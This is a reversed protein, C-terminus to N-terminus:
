FICKIVFFTLGPYLIYLNIKVKVKEHLLRSWKGEKQKKMSIAVIHSGVEVTCKDVIISDFLRYNFTYLIGDSTARFNVSNETFKVIDNSQGIADNVSVKLVVRFTNQVWKVEPPVGSRTSINMNQNENRLTTGALPESPVKVVLSTRLDKCLQKTTPQLDLEILRSLVPVMNHELLFTKHKRRTSAFYDCQQISYQICMDCDTRNLNNVIAEILSEKKLDECGSDHETLAAILMLVGEAVLHEATQSLCKVLKICICKSMLYDFVSECGTCLSSLARCISGQVQDNDTSGLVELLLQLKDTKLFHSKLRMSKKCSEAIFMAAQQQLIGNCNMELCRVISDIINEDVFVDCLRDSAQILCVCSNLIVEHVDTYQLRGILKVLSPVYSEGSKMMAETLYIACCYSIEEAIKLVKTEDTGFYIAACLDPIKHLLTPYPKMKFRAPASFLPKIDSGQVPYVLQQWSLEEAVNVVNSRSSTCLEVVMKQRGAFKAPETEKVIATLDRLDSNVYHTLDWMVDGCKEEREDDIPVIDALKCEIAQLPLEYFRDVPIERVKDKPVKDSDGYDAFFVELEDAEIKLVQARYWRQDFNTYQALCYSGVKLEVSVDEYVDNQEVFLGIEKMLMELEDNKEIRQVFFLDPTSVSSVHVKHIQRIVPLVDTDFQRSEKTKILLSTPVEVKGQCLKYLRKLHDPNKDAYGQRVLEEHIYFQQSVTNSLPLYKRLLLPDLWMIRGVRLLVNGVLEKDHLKDHIFTSALKTWETDKDVPRIKCVFVEIAQFPHSALNEPLEYLKVASVTKMRGCDVFWVQVKISDADEPNVVVNFIQVRHFVDNEEYACVKGLDYGHVDPVYRKKNKMNAFWMSLKMMIDTYRTSLDEYQKCGPRKVGLIRVYYHSADLVCSLKVKIEGERPLWDADEICDIEPIIKHRYKCRMNDRCIGFAMMQTCMELNDNEDRQESRRDKM